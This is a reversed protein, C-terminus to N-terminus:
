RLPELGVLHTLVMAPQIDIENSVPEGVVRNQKTVKHTSVLEKEKIM